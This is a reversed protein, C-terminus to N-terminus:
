LLTRVREYVAEALRGHSEADMHELDAGGPVAVSAADLFECGHQKAIKEYEGALEKSVGVSDKSFEPDYEAKWVDDGLLMPSVLLVKAGPVVREAQELLREIGAGIVKASAKFVTKCDNTGLMLVIVDVPAHTELIAPFLATGRRGDRLPDEFVTTRGVLGEEIIRVEENREAFKEQLLSTWRVGWPFREGNEGNYGWTNSDGFCLVQKM